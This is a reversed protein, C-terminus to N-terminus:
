QNSLLKIVLNRCKLPLARILYPIQNADTSTWQFSIEFVDVHLNSVDLGYKLTNSCPYNSHPIRAIAGVCILNAHINQLSVNAHTDTRHVFTVHIRREKVKPPTESHISHEKKM